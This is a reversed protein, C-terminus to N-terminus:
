QPKTRQVHGYAGEDRDWRACAELFASEAPSLARAGETLPPRYSGPLYNLHLGAVAPPDLLALRTGVTAGWDGGQVGFRQYGLGDVMLRHWLEAVKGPHMGPAAPPASFGYGPLSPVIVDFGDAPDGGFRAPDTLRPILELMEMFSGPWGHTIIVPFPRSGSGRQHIFHILQGQIEARYHPWRNLGAEQVRWDFGREWYAVLDHLYGADTGELWGTGPVLAPWRTRRLRGRLDELVDEAVRIEFPEIQM